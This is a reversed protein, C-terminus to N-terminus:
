LKQKLDTKLLSCLTNIRRWPSDLIIQGLKDMGAIGSGLYLIRLHIDSM